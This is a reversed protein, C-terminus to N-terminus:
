IMGLDTLVKAAFDKGVYLKILFPVPDPAQTHWQPPMRALCTSQCRSRGSSHFM